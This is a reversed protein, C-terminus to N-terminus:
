AICIFCRLVNNLWQRLKVSWFHSASQKDHSPTPPNRRMLHNRADAPVGIRCRALSSACSVARSGGRGAPMIQHSVLTGALHGGHPLFFFSFSFSFDLFSFPPLSSFSFPFSLLSFSLSLSASLSVCLALSLSPAPCSSPPSLHITLSYVTCILSFPFLLCSRSIGTIFPNSQWERGPPPYNKHEICRWARSSEM